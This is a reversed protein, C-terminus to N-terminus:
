TFPRWPGFAVLAVMEAGFPARHGDKTVATARESQGGTERGRAVACLEGLDLERNGNADLANANLARQRMSVMSIDQTTKEETVQPM